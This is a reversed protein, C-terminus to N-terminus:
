IFRLYEDGQRRLFGEGHGLELRRIDVHGFQMVGKGDQFDGLAFMNTKKLLAIASLSGNGTLGPETPLDWDVYRTAQFRATMGHAPSAYSLDHIDDPLQAM